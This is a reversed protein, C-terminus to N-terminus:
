APRVQRPHLPLPTADARNQGRHRIPSEIRPRGQRRHKTSREEGAWYPAAPARRLRAECRRQASSAPDALWLLHVLRRDIQRDFRSTEQGTIRGAQPKQEPEPKAAPGRAPHARAFPLSRRAPAREPTESPPQCHDPPRQRPWKTLGAGTRVPRM